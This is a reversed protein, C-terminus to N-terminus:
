IRTWGDLRRQKEDLTAADDIEFIKMDKPWSTRFARTDMGSAVIVMQRPGGEATVAGFLFEDFFCGRVAIPNAVAPNGPHLAELRLLLARGEDGALMASWPDNFIRDPREQERARAAAEAMSLSMKPTMRPNYCLRAFARMGRGPFSPPPRGLPLMTVM